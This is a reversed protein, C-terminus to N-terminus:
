LKLGLVGDIVLQVGICLLLFGMIKTLANAGIVGLRKMIADSERLILWCATGVLTIGAIVVGHPTVGQTSVRTSLSMAAAIAGPGALLPMALPSFAIDTKATAEAHENSPHTHEPKPNLQAFAYRSIILGGAIRIGPLSIGFFNVIATGAVFFVVLIAVMYIAGRRAFSRREDPTNDKTLSQFIAANGFPNAIPFLAALTAVFLDLHASM